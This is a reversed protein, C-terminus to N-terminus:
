GSGSLRPLFRGTRRMYNAYAEGFAHLLRTEERRATRGLQLMAFLLAAMTWASPAVLLCGCLALLFAAYFPHRVRAYAGHTVLAAPTDNEQHWLSVRQQHTGLTYAILAISAAACVVGAFLTASVLTVNPEATGVAGNLWLWDGFLLAAGAIVFPAATLWWHANLTGRRFFLRPLAAIFALNLASPWLLPDSLIRM